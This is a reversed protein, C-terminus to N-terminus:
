ASNRSSTPNRSESNAIAATSLRHERWIRPFEFEIFSPPPHRNYRRRQSLQATRRNQQAPTRAPGFM